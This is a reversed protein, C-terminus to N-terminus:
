LTLPEVPQFHVHFIDAIGSTIYELPIVTVLLEYCYSHAVAM